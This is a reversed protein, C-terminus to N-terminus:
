KGRGYNNTLTDKKTEKAIKSKETTIESDKSGSGKKAKSESSAKEKKNESKSDENKSSPKNSISNDTTKGEERKEAKAEEKARKEADKQSKKDKVIKKTKREEKKEKSQKLKNEIKILERKAHLNVQINNAIVYELIEKKKKDGVRRIMGIMGKEVKKLDTLHNVVFPKLEKILGRTKKATRFGIKVKRLHGKMNLRMKNDSGKGKRYKQKNKRRVGLKSYSAFNTRKFKKQVM